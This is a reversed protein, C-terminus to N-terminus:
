GKRERKFACVRRNYLSLGRIYQLEGQFHDTVYEMNHIIQPHDIYHPAGRMMHPVPISGYGPGTAYYGHMPPARQEVFGGYYATQLSVPPPSLSISLLSPPSYIFTKM